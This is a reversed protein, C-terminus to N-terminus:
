RAGDVQRRHALFAQQCSMGAQRLEAFEPRQRIGKFLPDNEIAPYSCYNRQIAKQLQKLAEDSEGCYSLVSAYRFVGEPDRALKPDADNEAKAKRLEEKTYPKGTEPNPSRALCARIVEVYRTGETKSAANAEDLAEATNGVRLAIEMRLAAGFGTNEDLQTYIRARNYNGKLTFTTACSRFRRFGPDIALAADCEKGAEEILGAYRLVYGMTYHSMSSDPRKRMLMAADDYAALLEGEEALITAVTATGSPDIERAQKAADLAKTRSVNGGEGYEYDIYYRHSLEDWALAYGPDLSVSQELNKIAILNPVPDRPISISHLYLDFARASSPTPIGGSSNSDLHLAALAGRTARDALQNRLGLLDQGSVAIEDRWIPEDRGVDALEVNIVLKSGVVMYGGSLVHSVRLEKGVAVPDAAQVYKTTSSFPRVTVSRVHSLETILENPIAYRLYDLTAGAGENTFPLVAIVKQEPRAASNRWASLVILLLVFVLGISPWRWGRLKRPNSPSSELAPVQRRVPENTPPQPVGDEITRIPAVFSYGRKSITEIYRADDGGEGLAKRLVSIHSTLTSEEVVTGAWVKQLLEDKTVPNGQAEVLVSLIEIVKPRLPLREGHRFLLGRAADLRFPGFEYQRAFAM